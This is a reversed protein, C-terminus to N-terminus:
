PRAARGHDHELADRLDVVALDDAQAVDRQADVLALPHEQDALGARALRREDPQQDLLEVRGLARDEDAAAREALELARPDGLEAAVDAADELVELQQGVAVGVLVHRVRELHLALRPLHDVLLHGLDQLEDPEAVLEVAERVLEGAALLLADRDRAREDVM